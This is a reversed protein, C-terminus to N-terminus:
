VVSKRDPTEIKAPTVNVLSGHLQKNIQLPNLKASGDSGYFECYFFDQEAQFTWSAEFFISVGNKTELMGICTDEVSKTEHTYMKANVRQVTPFGLMWLGLDLLVIGLDLFVGGGAKEKKTLWAHDTTLKKLWGAKVYFVKGLEGGEVFSKLIMSDPRFRNNMGVMLKRKSEKAAEAMKVAEDYHRAIPKEVFVDKGAQLCATAIPLHADTSTCIVVAELEESKLMEEYDSYCHEVGFKEAIFRARSKDKDCVAVLDVDDMKSLLPLHFIQAVWGLGVIGVRIKDM